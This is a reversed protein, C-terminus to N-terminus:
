LERGLPQADLRVQRLIVAPHSLRHRFLRPQDLFGPRRRCCLLNLLRGHQRFRSRSCGCGLWRGRGFNLIGELSEGSERASGQSRLAIVGLNLAIAPPNGAEVFVAVAALGHRQPRLRRMVVVDVPNEGLRAGVAHREIDFLIGVPGPLGFFGGPSGTQPQPFVGSSDNVGRANM